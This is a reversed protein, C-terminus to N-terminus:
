SPVVKVMAHRLVKQPTQYGKQFVESVSGPEGEEPTGQLVANELEPDFPEGLRNIEAVGFKGLADRLQRLVLEVGDRMAATQEITADQGAKQAAEAARELNDLVPLLQTLVEAAGDAIADARVQQNRRRYNDFDAQVRQALNLYEEREAEAKELQAALASEAESVTECAAQTAVDPPITDAEPAQEAAPFQATNKKKSTM